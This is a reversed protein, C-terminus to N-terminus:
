QGDQYLLENGRVSSRQEEACVEDCM